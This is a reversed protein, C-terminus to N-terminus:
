YVAGGPKPRKMVEHNFTHDRKLVGQCVSSSTEVGKGTPPLSSLSDQHESLWQKWERQRELDRESGPSIVRSEIAPADPVIAPLRRVASSGLPAFAGARDGGGRYDPNDLVKRVADISFWGGLYQLRDLADFQVSPSGFLFECRVEQLEVPQGLKALALQVARAEHIEIHKGAKRRYALLQPVFSPDGSRGAQLIDEIDGKQIGDSLKETSSISGGSEQSKVALCLGLVAITFLVSNRM